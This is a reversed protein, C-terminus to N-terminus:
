SAGDKENLQKIAKKLDPPATLYYRRMSLALLGIMVLMSLVFLAFTHVMRGTAVPEYQGTVLWIQHWVWSFVGMMPPILIASALAASFFYLPARPAEARMYAEVFEAEGVHADLEGQKRKAAYVQPAFNRASKWRWALLAGWAAFGLGALLLVTEVRM